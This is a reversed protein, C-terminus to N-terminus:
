QKFRTCRHMIGYGDVDSKRSYGYRSEKALLLHGLDNGIRDAECGTMQVDCHSSM